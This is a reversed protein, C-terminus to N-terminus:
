DDNAIAGVGQGDLITAGSANSLNIRFTENSEVKSDGKVSVSVTKSTQGTAFTLSGKAEVYDEGQKATANSSAFKATVPGSAAPSLSVTFRATRRGSDGETVRVDNIRLVPGDDNLITGIGLGDAITM